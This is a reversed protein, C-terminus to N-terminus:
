SCFEVIGIASPHFIAPTACRLRRPGLANEGALLTGGAFMCSHRWPPIEVCSSLDRFRNEEAGSALPPQTSDPSIMTGAHILAESVLRAATNQM